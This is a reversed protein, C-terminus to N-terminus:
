HRNNFDEERELLALLVHKILISIWMYPSKDGAERKDMFEVHVIDKSEEELLTYTCYQASFGPSDNRTDGCVVVHKEKLENGKESLYNNFTDEVEPCIYHSQMSHFLRSSIPHLGMVELM